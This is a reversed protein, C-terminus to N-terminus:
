APARAARRWMIAALVAVALGVGVEWWIVGSFPQHPAIFRAHRDLQYGIAGAVMFLISTATASFALWLPSWMRGRSLRYQFWVGAGVVTLIGLVAVIPEM